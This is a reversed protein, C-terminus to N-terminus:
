VRHGCESCYKDVRKIRQGCQTCYKCETDRMAERKELGVMKLKLIVAYDEVELNSYTFQQNSKSGEVTAGPLACSTSLSGFGSSCKMTNGNVVNSSSYYVTGEQPYKGATTKDDTYVWQPGNNDEKYPPMWVFDRWDFDIKIGNQHKAKRFEVKIIGNSSSTPDDVDPNDLSVFKFRKGRELSRDIYRELDITGGANIIVDGLQSVKKGDIFVRATCSRDNKNKLRIKYESDFPIAVERNGKHGTEKVPHGDHIVSLVFKDKYMIM